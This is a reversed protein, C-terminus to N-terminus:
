GIMTSLNIDDNPVLHEMPCSCLEEMITETQSVTQDRELKEMWIWEAGKGGNLRYRSCKYM